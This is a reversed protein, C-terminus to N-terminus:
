ALEAALAGARRGYLLYASSRDLITTGKRGAFPFTLYPVHRVTVNSLGPSSQTGTKPPVILTVEVGRAALYTVLDHVHRELGGHGHMPMVARAVVVVALRQRM